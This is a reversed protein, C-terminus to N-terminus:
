APFQPFPVNHLNYLIDPYHIPLPKVALLSSILQNHLRPDSALFFEWGSFM